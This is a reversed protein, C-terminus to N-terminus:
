DSKRLIQQLNRSSRPSASLARASSWLTRSRLECLPLALIMIFVKLITSESILFINGLRYSSERFIHPMYTYM